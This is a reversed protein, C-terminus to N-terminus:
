PCAGWGNIVALLDNVNVQGDPRAPAIDAPCGGCPGWANIVALLDNVNVQLDGTVDSTCSPPLNCTIVVTGNGTTATAGGVRVRYVTGSTVPFSIQSSSGCFDDNCALMQGAVTPCPGYAALRTTYSAGCVSVTATGTCTASFKYWLDNVIQTPGAGCGAGEDPGDTTAGFTNFAASGSAVNTANVCTDNAPPLPVVKYVEGGRDVIYLEGANDEGFSTVSAISLGGGPALEATRNTFNTVTSGDYMLSWIQNSANDAFFYTGQLSPIGNGRYVYGGIIALGTTPNVYTHIPNTLTAGNCTCGSLGTCVNGEMCRWGFNRGIAGAPAFDIEERANQGVDGIYLNGNLRDFSARWPNRLGWHLIEDLGATPGFFPNSTPSTYGNVSGNGNVGDDDDNGPTNDAGDIDIRLM